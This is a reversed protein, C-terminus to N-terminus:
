LVGGGMSVNKDELINPFQLQLHRWDEWTADAPTTHTWHVLVEEKGKRTRRELIALPLPGPTMDTAPLSPTVRTVDGRAAKLSSVHFVPHVKFEDPLLLRYALKSICGSVQYLGFWKPALKHDRRQSLTIQRYPPLKVYVWDGENFQTDTRGQNYYHAM